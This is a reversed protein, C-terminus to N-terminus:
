IERKADFNELYWAVKSLFSSGLAGDVIRHDYSLSMMMMHRIAIVDGHETELVAPKKRISGTALIAVQPQNIIPTGM